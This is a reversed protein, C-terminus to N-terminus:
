GICSPYLNNNFEAIEVYVAHKTPFTQPGSQNVQPAGRPSPLDPTFAPITLVLTARCAFVEGKAVVTHANPTEQLRVLNDEANRLVTTAKSHCLIRM